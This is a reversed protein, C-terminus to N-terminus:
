KFQRTPSVYRTTGQDINAKTLKYVDNAADVLKQQETSQAQTYKLQKEELATGSEWRKGIPDVTISITRLSDSETNTGKLTIQLETRNAEPLSEYSIKTIQSADDVPYLAAKIEGHTTILMDYLFRYSQKIGSIPLPQTLQLHAETLPQEREAPINHKGEVTAKDTILQGVALITQTLQEKISQTEKPQLPPDNEAM